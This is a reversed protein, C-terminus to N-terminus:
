LRTLPFRLLLDGTAPARLEFEAPYASNLADNFTTGDRLNSIIFVVRGSVSRLPPVAVPNFLYGPARSLLGQVSAEVTLGSDSLQERVGRFLLSDGNADYMRLFIEFEQTYLDPNTISVTPTFIPYAFGVEIIGNSTSETILASSLQEARVGEVARSPLLWLFYVPAPLLMLLAALLHLWRSMRLANIVLAVAALLLAMGAEAAVTRQWLPLRGVSLPNSWIVALLYTAAALLLLASALQLLRSSIGAPNM